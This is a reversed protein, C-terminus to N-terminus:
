PIYGYIAWKSILLFSSKAKSFPSKGNLFFQEIVMMSGADDLNSTAAGPHDTAVPFFTVPEHSNFVGEITRCIHLIGFMNCM